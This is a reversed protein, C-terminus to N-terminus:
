FVSADWKTRVKLGCLLTLMLSDAYDPSKGEPDIIRIKGASTLEYRMQSLQSILKPSPPISIMDQEFLSRLMWWRQAKLNLYRESHLTPSESVRISTVSHGLEKLQSFVGAGVGISDVNLNDKKNVLSSVRNAAPITEQESIRTQEVVRYLYGDTEAKTLITLDTGREAVDLGYITRPQGSFCLQKIQARAIWDWRILTDDSDEPFRSEYLVAFEIPTLEARQEEVFEETVRGELIAQKYDIHIKKFAPNNWARYAFNLRHWPNVLIVLKADPNAGLMRSIRKRYVEDEILCAEDLIIIDGGFGMLQRGPDEGAGHATLTLIECGNKFTLREKSMESKLHEPGTHAANDVLDCLFSSAAIIEASYNRIINTQKITPAIFIFKTDKNKADLIYRLVAIAAAQTKGYQTVASIILRKVAPDLINGIIELQGEQLTYGFADAQDIEQSM